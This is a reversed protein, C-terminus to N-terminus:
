GYRYVQGRREYGNDPLMEVIEYRVGAADLWYDGVAMEADYAGLLQHTVKRQAGDGARILGPNNGGTSSQDILRFTQKARPPASTLTIGGAPTRTSEVPVLSLTIPHASIFASTNKRNNRLESEVSM